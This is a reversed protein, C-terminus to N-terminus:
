ARMDYLESISNYTVNHKEKISVLLPKLDEWYKIEYNVQLQRMAELKIDTDPRFYGKIEVYTNTDKIYFDPYYKHQKRDMGRYSFAETNRSIALGSDLCYILYILEYRSDCRIGKYYGGNGTGHGKTIGGLKREKAHDSFLKQLCESSCTKRFRNVYPLEKMCVKCFPKRPNSIYEFERQTVERTGEKTHLQKHSTKDREKAKLSRSRNSETTQKRSHACAKSCFRGSAYKETMVKGCRECTHQESIWNELDRFDLQKRIAKSKEWRRRTGEKLQELILAHKEKYQEYRGPYKLELYVKCHGRHGNFGQSDTFTKGCECIYNNEM